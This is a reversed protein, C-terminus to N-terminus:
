VEESQHRIQQAAELLSQYERKQYMQGLQPDYGIMIHSTHEYLGKLTDEVKQKSGSITYTKGNDLALCVAHSKGVTILGYLKQSTVNQYAWVVHPTELVQLMTGTSVLLWRDSIKVLGPDPTADAFADLQEFTSDPSATNKCYSILNKKWLSKGAWVPLLVALILFIVALFGTGCAMSPSVTTGTMGVEGDVIVLHLLEGDGYCGPILENGDLDNRLYHIDEEEMPVVAGQILFGQPWDQSGGDMIVDCQETLDEALDLKDAGVRVAIWYGNELQVLYDAANVKEIGDMETTYEVYSGLTWDMPAQVYKGKLDYGDFEAAPAPGQLVQVFGLNGMIIFLGAFVILLFSVLLMNRVARNKAKKFM